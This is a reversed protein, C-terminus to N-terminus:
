DSIHINTFLAPREVDDWVSGTRPPWLTDGTMSLLFIANRNPSYIRVYPRWDYEGFHTWARRGHRRHVEFIEGPYAAHLVNSFLELVPDLLDQYYIEAGTVPHKVHWGTGSGATEFLTTNWNPFGDARYWKKRPEDGPVACKGKYNYFASM